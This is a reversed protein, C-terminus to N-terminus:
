SESPEIPDSWESSSEQRFGLWAFALAGFTVAIDAVNLIGTHLPGLGFMVFDTVAGNNWIRDILNGIGGAALLLGGWITPSMRREPLHRLVFWLAAGVMLGSLLTFALWRALPPWSTGMGLFAGHNEMFTLRFTDGLYTATPEGALWRVAAQKTVQDCSVCGLMLLGVVVIPHKM